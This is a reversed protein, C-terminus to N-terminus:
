LPLLFNFFRLSKRCIKISHIFPFVLNVINKKTPVNQNKLECDNFIDNNFKTCRKIYAIVIEFCLYNYIM